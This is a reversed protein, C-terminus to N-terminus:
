AIRLTGFLGKFWKIGGTIIKWFVSRLTPAAPKGNSVYLREVENSYDSELPVPENDFATVVFYYTQTKVPGEVTFEPNDIDSLETLPVTLSNAYPAGSDTDWYIKYGALDEETNADWTLGVDDAYSTSAFILFMITLLVRKM